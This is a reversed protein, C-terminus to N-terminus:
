HQKACAKADKWAALLKESFFQWKANDYGRLRAATMLYASTVKVLMFTKFFPYAATPTGSEREFHAIFEAETPVGDVKRDLTQQAEALFIMLALDAETHGLYSLEWDLVAAIRGDDFMINAFQADGHVLIPPYPDVAHDILWRAVEHVLKVEARDPGCALESEAIWFNLEREVVTEGAGRSLLHPVTEPGVASRKLRAHFAVAELMIARRRAASIDALPGKSFMAASPADGFIRAMIVTPRGLRDGTEDIWLPEPVPFALSHLATLTSFEDRFSKQSIVSVGPHYRLVIDYAKRGEGRDLEVTVFSIGNSAGAGETLHDGALMEVRGHVDSQAELFATLRALDIREFKEKVNGERQLVGEASVATM